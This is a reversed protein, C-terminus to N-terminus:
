RMYLLANCIAAAISSGGKRGRSVIYPVPATMIREKAVAVNVFGVPVGIVLAPHLKGKEILRHLEVLATPANGVAIILPRGGNEQELAAAKRMSAVARTTGEEKARAAVDEDAMFSFIRCGHRKLAAKNVGAKGMGTDMVFDAGQEIAELAREVAGESFVLNDAYDFDASTHICRKVIPEELPPFTRDGLEETLIAFSRKEIEEPLVTELQEPLPIWYREMCAGWDALRTDEYVGGNALITRRSAENERACTVLIRTMGRRRGFDLCLGLMEKAYGKRRQSPRICYGIHGGFNELEENLDLRLQILGVLYGDEKRVCLFMCAPVLGEPVRDWTERERCLKIWRRVDRVDELGGAGHMQEGLREFEERFEQIAEVDEESPKKLELIGM